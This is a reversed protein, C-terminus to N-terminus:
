NGQRANQIENDEGLLAACRARGKATVYRRNKVSDQPVLLFWDLVALLFLLLSTYKESKYKILKEFFFPEELWHSVHPPLVVHGRLPASGNSQRPYRLEVHCERLESENSECQQAAILQSYAETVLLELRQHVKPPNNPGEQVGFLPLKNMKNSSKPHSSSKKPKNILNLKHVPVTSSVLARHLLSNSSTNKGFMALLLCNNSSIPRIKITPSHGIFGCKSGSAKEANVNLIAELAAPFLLWEM